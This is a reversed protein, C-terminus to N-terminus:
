AYPCLLVTYQLCILVAFLPKIQLITNFNINCSHTIFLQPISIRSNKIVFPKFFNYHMHSLGNESLHIRLIRRPRRHTTKYMPASTEISIAAETDLAFSYTAHQFSAFIFFPIGPYPGRHGSDRLPEIM